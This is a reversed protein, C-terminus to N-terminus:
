LMFAQEGLLSVFQLIPLDLCRPLYDARPGKLEFILNKFTRLFHFRIKRCSKWAQFCMYYCASLEEAGQM